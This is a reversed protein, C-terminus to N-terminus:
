FKTANECARKVAVHIHVPKGNEHSWFFFIYQEVTLIKPM